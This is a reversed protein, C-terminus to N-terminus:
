LLCCPMAQSATAWLEQLSMSQSRRASSGPRHASRRCSSERLRVASMLYTQFHCHARLHAGEIEVVIFEDLGKACVQRLLMGDRQRAGEKSASGKGWVLGAAGGQHRPDQGPVHPRPQSSTLIHRLQAHIYTRASTRTPPAVRASSALASPLFQQCPHYRSTSSHQRVARRRTDHTEARRGGKRCSVCRM